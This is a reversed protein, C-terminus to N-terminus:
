GCSQISECDGVTCIRALAANVDGCARRELYPVVFDSGAAPIRCVIKPLATDINYVGRRQNSGVDDASVAAASDKYAIARRGDLVVDNRLVRAIGVSPSPQRNLTRRATRGDRVIDDDVIREFSDPAIVGRPRLDDVVRNGPVATATNLHPSKRHPTCRRIDDVVDNCEVRPIADIFVYRANGTLHPVVQKM